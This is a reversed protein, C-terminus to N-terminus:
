NGAAKRRAVEQRIVEDAADTPAVGEPAVFGPSILKALKIRQLHHLSEFDEPIEPGAAAASVDRAEQPKPAPAMKEGPSDDGYLKAVGNVYHDLATEPPFGATQGVRWPAFSRVMTMAVLGTGRNALARFDELKLDAM